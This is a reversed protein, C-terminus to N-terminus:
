GDDGKWEHDLTVHREVIKAGMAVAAVSIAIGMEHGSYGIVVDPFEQQYNQM